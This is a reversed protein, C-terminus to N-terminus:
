LSIAVEGHHLLFTNTSPSWCEVFAKMLTDSYEYTFLSACVAEYIIATSLKASCRSLVDEAWYGPTYEFLRHLAISSHWSWRGTAVYERLVRYIKPPEDRTHGRGALVYACSPEGPTWSMNGCAAKGNLAEWPPCCGKQLPPHVALITDEDELDMGLGLSSLCIGFSLLAVLLFLLCVAHLFTTHELESEPTFVFGSHCPGQVFIRFTYFTTSNLASYGIDKMEKEKKDDSAAAHMYCILRNQITGTIM